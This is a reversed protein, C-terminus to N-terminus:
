VQTGKEGQAEALLSDHVNAQVNREICATGVELSTSCEQISHQEPVLSACVPGCFLELPKIDADSFSQQPFRSDHAIYRDNSIGRDQSSLGRLLQNIAGIIAWLLRRLWPPRWGATLWQALRRLLTM